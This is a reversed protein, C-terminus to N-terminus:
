QRVAVMIRPSLGSLDGPGYVIAPRLIVYEMGESNKIIEQLSLEYPNNRASAIHQMKSSSEYLPFCNRLFPLRTPLILLVEVKLRHAAVKTWPKLKGSENSPQPRHLALLLDHTVQPRTDRCARTSAKKDAEYVQGTSVEIWRKVKNEVAAAACKTATVVCKVDYDVDSCGCRTEGCLNIVYDFTHDAFARKVHDDRSLDAQKFEVIDKQDFAEKHVANLYSTIPLSKDAVRIFKALKNDVQTHTPM